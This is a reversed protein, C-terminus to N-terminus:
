QIFSHLILASLGRTVILVKIDSKLKKEKQLQDKGGKTGFNSFNNETIRRYSVPIFNYTFYNIKGKTLAVSACKLKGQVAKLVLSLSYDSYRSKISSANQM